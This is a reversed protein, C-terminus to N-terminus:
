KTILNHLDDKHDSIFKILEQASQIDKKSQEKTHTNEWISRIEIYINFIGMAATLFPYDLFESAIIDIVTLCVMPLFYQQAKEATKRFGKSTTAEGRTIANKVGTICDLLMSIMVGIYILVLYVAEGQLHSFDFTQFIEM